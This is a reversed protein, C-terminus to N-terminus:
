LRTRCDMDVLPVFDSEDGRHKSQSVGSSTAGSRSTGTTAKTDGFLRPSIRTLLSRIAPLCACIVGVHVEITSWYGVEVYDWTLNNTNAFKILSDLRLISVLTVFIGLSFMCMVFCKKRLSLQLNYLERLPMIMVVLDLAMNFVAASWGQANINNCHYEREGDWHLWAGQLPRCQFVSILVFAILYCMNLGIVVYVANRFSRKPFVRLYFFLISIKTLPLISLYLLEDYFYIKLIRTINEFPLVWIDKGLGTDALNVSLASLPIVLLMNLAMAWDDLGLEGGCCKMRAMVRLIFAILALIGGAVGAYSVAKTRDRTPARCATMSVNKTTLSERITCNAAVCIEVDATLVPDTCICLQDTPACDSAAIGVMMCHLGCKPMVAAIQKLDATVLVPLMLAALLVTHLLM